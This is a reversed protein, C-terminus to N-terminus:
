EEIVIVEDERVWGWVKDEHTCVVAIEEGAILSLFMSEQVELRIIGKKDSLELADLGDNDFGIAQEVEIEFYFSDFEENNKEDILIKHVRHVLVGEVLYPKHMTILHFFEDGYLLYDLPLGICAIVLVLSVSQYLFLGIIIGFSFIGSLLYIHKLLRKTKVEQTIEKYLKVWDIHFKSMKSTNFHTIYLKLTFTFNIKSFIM